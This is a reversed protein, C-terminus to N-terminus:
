VESRKDRFVVSRWDRTAISRLAEEDVLEYRGDVRAILGDDVLGALARNVSERSVGVMSALMTQSVPPTRLRAASPELNTDALELMRLVLRDVLPRTLLSSIVNTQWRTNSALREAVRSMVEPHARLFPELVRRPLILLTTPRTAIVQLIREREVSFFGPEGVTMCPGHLFHVVEDGDLNVMASKVEGSIVVYLEDAPDGVHCIPEGRGLTRVRAGQAVPEIQHAPLAEFLYSRALTTVRDSLADV